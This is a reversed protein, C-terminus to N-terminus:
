KKKLNINIKLENIDIGTNKPERIRPMKGIKPPDPIMLPQSNNDKQM